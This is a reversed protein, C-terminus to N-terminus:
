AQTPAPGGGKPDIGSAAAHRLIQTVVETKADAYNQIYTWTRTALERKAAAYFERDSEHSRLWDRFLLMRRAELCGASFVHLNINTDPGKFVRHEYWHPERIVLRYGVAELAPVYEPEDASDPLELVVDIIPKAALGPVSPSGVHQIRVARDGLATRIRDAERGFLRPWDEDYDVLVVPGSLKPPDGGVWIAAVQEDSHQAPKASEGSGAM